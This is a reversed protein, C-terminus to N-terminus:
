KDLYAKFGESYIIDGDEMIWMAEVDEMEHIFSLGEELSMIFVATSLADGMGSDECIISVSAVQDAPMLTDPNIIHCYRKGDVMYYRQYNGSTVVSYDSLLVTESYAEKSELDPNMIGIKWDTGDAKGGISCINGGVNLLMHSIGIERAYEATKQVAYGKGIGGVDLSMEPDELFVTSAEEDIILHDLDMHKAAQELEKMEPLEAQEPDAEGKERYKHWITLVSGMGANVKGGTSEYMEKCLRLLDIIEKDVVIPAIGANDNITKINNIGDYSEYIDYLKHYERFRDMVKGVQINFEEESTNYGTIVTQTNFVDFFTATYREVTGNERSGAGMYKGATLCGILIIVALIVEKKDKM